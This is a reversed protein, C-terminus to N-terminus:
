RLTLPQHGRGREPFYQLWWIRETKHLKQSFKNFHYTLAGVEPFDQIRWQM